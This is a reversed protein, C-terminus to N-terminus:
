KWVDPHIAVIRRFLENSQRKRARGNLEGRRCTDAFDSVDLRLKWSLSRYSRKPAQGTRQQQLQEVTDLFEELIEFDQRDM